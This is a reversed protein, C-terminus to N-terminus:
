FIFINDVPNLGATRSFNGDKLASVVGDSESVVGDSESVVGDSESIVGDSESIVGDSESIVGGSESVVFILLAAFDARLTIDLNTAPKQIPSVM